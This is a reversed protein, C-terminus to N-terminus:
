TDLFLLRYGSDLQTASTAISASTLPGAPGLVTVLSLPLAEFPIAVASVGALPQPVILTPEFTEPQWQWSTPAIKITESLMYMPVGAAQAGLALPYTGTKNVVRGDALLADAGVIVATADRLALMLAADPLLTVPLGWTATERALDHGEGGPRSELVMVSAIRDRALALAQAVTGSRSLLVLREAAGLRGLLQAAIATPDQALGLRLADVRQSAATLADEPTAAASAARWLDSAIHTLAAMSHRATAVDRCAQRLVDRQLHADGPTAIVLALAALADGAIAASGRAHDTRLRTLVAQMESVREDRM